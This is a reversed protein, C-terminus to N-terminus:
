VARHAGAQRGGQQAGRQELDVRRWAWGVRTCVRRQGNVRQPRQVAGTRRRCMIVHLVLCRREQRQLVSHARM